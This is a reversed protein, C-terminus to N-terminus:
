VLFRSHPTNKLLAEAENAPLPRAFFYGQGYECNLQHLLKLQEITEIGEAIVDMHLHHSLSIITEVIAVKEAQHDMEGVFSKDIKLTDMPFRTLYEFSSYGTGFDDMSLKIDLSKLELLLDIATKFDKMVVTETVELKLRDPSLQTEKLVQEVRKTLDVLGFQKGSLNVSIILSQHEAFLQQWQYTQQCAQRLVWEGIPIILGTQEAIPIFQDPRVLGRTPHQWRVLAEFGAIDGTKLHIIPQYHVVFEPLNPFTSKACHPSLTQKLAATNHPISSYIKPTVSHRLDRELEFQAIADTEMATEFVAPQTKELARAQYMATQADKLLDRQEKIREFAIGINVQTFVEEEKLDFPIQMKRQIRNALRIIMTKRKFNIFLIAFEDESVRAIAHIYVMQKSLLKTLRIQFAILLLEGKHHGLVMNVVKFRDLHLLLVAHNNIQKYQQKVLYRTFLYRNPLHTLADYFMNYMLKFLTISSGTVIFGALPAAIPIWVGKLFLIYSIVILSGIGAFTVLMLVLPHQLRWALSLSLLAWTLIWLIEVKEPWFTFMAHYKKSWISQAIGTKTIEPKGMAATLLQSIIHAHIFVGAMHVKEDDVASYPTPFTNKVSTATTGILVIKGKIWSPNIQQNLADQLTVTRSVKRGSRYNLMIQYGSADVNQYGGSNPKLPLFTAKGLEFQEPNKSTNQSYIEQQRLYHLALNTSFATLVKGKTNVAYMLNRRVVRDTDLVLDNFGVREPPVNSPPPTPTVRKSGLTTIVMVNPQKLQTLLNEHGPEFPIHRPINLGIVAPQHKSLSELLYAVVQDPLPWRKQTQIDTETIEIVLLRPDIGIEPRSRTMWDFALLELPTFWDLQKVGLILLAIMFSVLLISKNTLLGTKLRNRYLLQKVM